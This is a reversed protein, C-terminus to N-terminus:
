IKNPMGVDTAYDLLSGIVCTSIDLRGDTMEVIQNLRAVRKIARYKRILPSHGVKRREFGDYSCM